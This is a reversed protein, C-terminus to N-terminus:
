MQPLSESNLNANSLMHQVIESYCRACSVSLVDNIDIFLSQRISFKGQQSATPYDHLEHLGGRDTLESWTLSIHISGNLM